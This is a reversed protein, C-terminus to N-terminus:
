YVGRGRIDTGKELKLISKAERYTKNQEEVAASGCCSRQVDRTFKKLKLISSVDRYTKNQV